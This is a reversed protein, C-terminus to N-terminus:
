CVAISAVDPSAMVQTARQLAAGTFIVPYLAESYWLRAFYLGIPSTPFQRGEDTRAILWNIGRHLASLLRTKDISEKVRVRGRTERSLPKAAVAALADVALATEEISSAVGPAGGWGGDLNQAAILWRTARDLMGSPLPVGRDDLACLTLMVRTTGYTPNGEGPVSQNGFWLPVWAGDMRQARSLYQLARGKARDITGTQGPCMDRWAMWARLAHATLDPASRDFPLYGWGRCFTPIGGDRNQLQLLWDVGARVADLTRGDTVSGSESAAAQPTGLATRTTGSELPSPPM